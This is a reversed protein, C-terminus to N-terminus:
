AALLAKDRAAELQKRQVVAAAIENAIDDVSPLQHPKFLILPIGLGELVQRKADVARQREPTEDTPWILEIAAVIAFNRDCVLFDVSRGLMQRLTSDVVRGRLQALQLIGVHAFVLMNPMGEVLRLYLAQESTNLLRYTKKRPSEVYRTQEETYPEEPEDEQRLSVRPIKRREQPGRKGAKMLVVVLLTVLAIVAIVILYAPM